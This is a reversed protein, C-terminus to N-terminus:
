FRMPQVPILVPSPLNYVAIVATTSVVVVVIVVVIALKNLRSLALGQDLLKVSIRIQDECFGLLELFSLSQSIAYGAWSGLRSSPFYRTLVPLRVESSKLSFVCLSGCAFVSTIHVERQGVDSAWLIQHVWQFCIAWMCQFQGSRKRRSNWQGGHWYTVQTGHGQNWVIDLM